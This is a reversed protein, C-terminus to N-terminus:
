NMSESVYRIFIFLTSLMLGCLVLQINRSHIGPAPKDTIAAEKDSSNDKIVRSALPRNKIVRFLFEAAFLTYIIIAALLNTILVTREHVKQIAEGMQFCIGGLMINGGVSGDDDEDGAAASAKAGGVSQV